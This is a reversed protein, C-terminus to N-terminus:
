SVGTTHTEQAGGAEPNLRKARCCVLRFTLHLIPNLCCNFAAVLITNTKVQFHNQVRACSKRDPSLIMISRQIHYPLFCALFVLVSALIKRKVRLGGGSGQTQSVESSKHVQQLHCLLLTYSSLMVLLIPYFVMLGIAFMSNSNTKRKDNMHDFCTVLDPNPTGAYTIEKYAMHSGISLVTLLWTVQCIQCCSRANRFVRLMTNNPQVVTAYRSISIWLLFWMNSYVNIYFVSVSIVIAVVCQRDLPKWENANLYYTMRFLLSFSQMIDSAVMNLTFIVTPTRKTRRLYLLTLGNTLFGLLALFLYIWPFVQSQSDTYQLTCNM